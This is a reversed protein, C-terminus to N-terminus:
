SDSTRRIQKWSNRNMAKDYFGLFTNIHKEENSICLGVPTDFGLWATNAWKKEKKKIQKFTWSLM